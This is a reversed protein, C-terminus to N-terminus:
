RKEDLVWETRAECVVKECILSAGPGRVKLGVRQRWKGGRSPVSKKRIINEIGNSRWLMEKRTRSTGEYFRGFILGNRHLV